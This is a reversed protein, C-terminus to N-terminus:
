KQKSRLDCEASLRVARELEQEIPDIIPSGRRHCKLLRAQSKPLYFLPSQVVRHYVNHMECDLIPNVPASQAGM